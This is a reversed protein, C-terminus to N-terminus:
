IVRPVRFCGRHRDPANSLVKERDMSPEVVDERFVNRQPMVYITPPVSDTNVRDLRKVHELIGSFEAAFRDREQQTLDLKALAAAYEVEKKTIM